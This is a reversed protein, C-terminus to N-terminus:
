GELDSCCLAADGVLVPLVLETSKKSENIEPLSQYLLDLHAVIKEKLIIQSLGGLRGICLCRM